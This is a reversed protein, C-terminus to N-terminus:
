ATRANPQPHRRANEVALLLRKRESGWHYRGIVGTEHIARHCPILYGIPNRGVAAGVARSATPAGLSHALRHYSVMAGEPVRLLAEWVKLQFPTGRLVVSLRQDANAAGHMRATIADAFARVARPAEEFRAGPWRERLENVSEDDKTGPRASADPDAAGAGVFQLGCLGRETAAFLARGFPTDHVGWRIVLGAARAKYEGPTMAELDIFLDHLRSPGSLGVELSADLLSRSQDLLLKADALTAFRLFAKPSVGVWEHFLRQLHFPSVGVARALEDLGPQETRHTDLYHLAHAVREYTSSMVGGHRAPESGDVRNKRWGSRGIRAGNAQLACTALGKLLIKHHAADPPMM